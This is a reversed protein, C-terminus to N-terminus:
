YYADDAVGAEEYLAEPEVDSSAQQLNEKSQFLIGNQMCVNIGKYNCVISYIGAVPVTFAVTFEGVGAPLPELNLSCESSMLTVKLQALDIETPEHYENTSQLIFETPRNILGGTLAMGNMNFNIQRALGTSRDNIVAFQVQGDRFLSRQGVWVKLWWQGEMDPVFRLYYLGTDEMTISGRLRNPGKIESVMKSLPVEAEAPNGHEDRSYLTIIVETGLQIKDPLQVSYRRNVLAM